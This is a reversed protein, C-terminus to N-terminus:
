KQENDAGNTESPTSKTINLQALLDDVTKIRPKEPNVLIPTYDDEVSPLSFTKYNIATDQEDVTCIANDDEVPAENQSQPEDDTITIPEIDQVPLVNELRSERIKKEVSVDAYAELVTSLLVDISMRIDNQRIIVAPLGSNINASIEQRVKKDSSLMDLYKTDLKIGLFQGNKSGFKKLSIIADKPIFGAGVGAMTYDYIGNKTIKIATPPSVISFIIVSTTFAFFMTCVGGIIMYTTIMTGSMAKTVVPIFPFFLFLLAICLMVISIAAYLPYSAQRKKIIIPLKMDSVPM